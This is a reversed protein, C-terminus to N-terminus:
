ADDTHLRGLVYRFQSTLCSNFRHLLEEIRTRCIRKDARLARSGNHNRVVNESVHISCLLEENRASFDETRPASHDNLHRIQRIHNLAHFVVGNVVLMKAIKRYATKQGQEGTRVKLKLPDIM